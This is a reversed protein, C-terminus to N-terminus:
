PYKWDGITSPPPISQGLDTETKINKVSLHIDSDLGPPLQLGLRNM